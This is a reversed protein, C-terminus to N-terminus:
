PKEIVKIYTIKPQDKAPISDSAPTNKCVKDIVDMGSIVHGFAAYQGDWGPYDALVIFFQSTASDNDNSKRAMSITGRVHSINNNVGNASFEGKITPQGSEGRGTGTPDGGQMLLGDVVRHFTLGDYFGDKVLTIFHTVTIPAADADLELQVVGYDEIKMEVYHKGSLKNKYNAVGDKKGSNMAIVGLVILAIILVAAVGIAIWTAKDMQVAGQKAVSKKNQKKIKRTGM